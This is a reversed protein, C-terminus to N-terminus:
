HPKQHGPVPPYGHTHPMSGAIAATGDGPSVFQILYSVLQDAMPTGLGTAPDWGPGAAFGAVGGFSNNGNTVDNLSVAYHPPAQGIHYLATNIFGLNHGAEQDAIALIASWQPSGASTGGFLYFGAPLGPIALYTLVGGHLVASDYAVDPVGRQTGGHIAGQQYSPEDFLVSFGGGTAGIGPENWAMEGQYTGRVPNVAPNCGLATLCYRAAQLETGGVGTVLPDVAPSSVAQALSKGDCTGQAAGSDGSSAFITINKMTAEAFLQHQEALLNPDMCSEDEGFSQSIVDGLNNDIAYKTASLIDADANSKALVLTINAGPAIAHAWMVDLSIEQAWGSM